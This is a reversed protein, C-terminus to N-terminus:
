LNYLKQFNNWSLLLLQKWREPAYGPFQRVSSWPGLSPAQMPKKLYNAIEGAAHSSAEPAMTLKTPWLAWVNAFVFRSLRVEHPIFGAVRGESKPADYMAWLLNEPNAFCTPALRQLAALVPPLWWRADYSLWEEVAGLAPGRDDSVLWVVEEDSERCVIFLGGIYPFVGTLPHLIKKPGRVVLMHSKRFQQQERVSRLYEPRGLSVVNLLAQNGSGAAFLIARPIVRISGGSRLRVQITKVNSTGLDVDFGLVEDLAAIRDECRKALVRIISEADLCYEPSRLVVRVAGGKLADPFLSRDLRSWSLRLRDHSWIATRLRAQALSVFGFHSGSQVPQINSAVLWEDWKATTSRVAAALEVERYMHGQHIYVHSHCTQGGGLLHKEFLVASYGANIIDNLCWLGAIGGGFIVVDVRIDSNMRGGKSPELKVKWHLHFAIKVRIECM